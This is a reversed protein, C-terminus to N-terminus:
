APNWREWSSIAPHLYIIVNVRCFTIHCVNLKCSTTPFLKEDNIEREVWTMVYDIYEPGSCSIPSKFRRGDAWRYEFGNPFGNGPGISRSVGIDCVIGWILSIENHLM